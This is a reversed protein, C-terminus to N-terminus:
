ISDILISVIKEFFPKYKKFADFMYSDVDLVGIITKNKILPVVIESNTLPDCAIHGPFKHVDDVVITEKKSISTGCVGKGLPILTCAVNGQFPYLELVKKDKNYKYFGVWSILGISSFKNYLFSSINAMKSVPNEVGEILSAVEKISSDLVEDSVIDLKNNIKLDIKNMKGKCVYVYTLM